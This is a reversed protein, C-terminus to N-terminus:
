FADKLREVAPHNRNKLKIWDPSRGARYPRDRAEVRPRGAGHQLSRSVLRSRDRGTRVSRRFYWRPAPGLAASSQDQTLELAPRAPGRWRTGPHRLSLVAEIIWPYRKIWDYGNRSILQVRNANGEVRLRYGDYKIEHLWDPASPVKTGRTPICFHLDKLMGCFYVNKTFIALEADFCGAVCAPTALCNLQIEHSIHPCQGSVAFTKM